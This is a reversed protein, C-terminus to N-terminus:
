DNAVEEIYRIDDTNFLSNGYCVWQKSVFSNAWDRFNSFDDGIYTSIISTGDKFTIKAKIM